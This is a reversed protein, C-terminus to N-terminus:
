LILIISTFYANLLNFKPFGHSRMFDKNFNPLAQTVHTYSPQFVNEFMNTNAFHGTLSSFYTLVFKQPNLKHTMNHFKPLSNISCLNLCSVVIDSLLNPKISPHDVMSAVKKTLRRFSFYLKLM